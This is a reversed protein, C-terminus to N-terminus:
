AGYPRCPAVRDPGHRGWPAQLPGLLPRNGYVHREGPAQGQVSGLPTAAVAPRSRDLQGKTLRASRALGFDRLSSILLYGLAVGSKRSTRM